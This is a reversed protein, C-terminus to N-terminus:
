SKINFGDSDRRGNRETEGASCKNRKQGKKGEKSQEKERGGEGRM